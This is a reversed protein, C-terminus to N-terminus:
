ERLKSLELAWGLIILSIFIWLFFRTIRSSRSESFYPSDCHTCRYQSQRSARWLAPLLWGAFHSISRRRNRLSITRERDLSGCNPCPAHSTFRSRLLFFGGVLPLVGLFIFELGIAWWPASRHPRFLLDICGLVCLIGISALVFGAVSKLLKM